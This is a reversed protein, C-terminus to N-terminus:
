TNKATCTKKATHAKELQLSHPSSELQPRHAEWQSPTEPQPAHASGTDGAIAPPNKVVPSGPFDWM